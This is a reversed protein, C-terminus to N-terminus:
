QRKTYTAKMSTYWTQGDDMSNEMMWDYKTDTINYSTVRSLMKVGGPMMDEGACVIKGDSFDGTYLSIGMGMNDTWMTQWKGLGRSYTTMSIGTMPMGDMDGEFTSELICGDLILNNTNVAAAETWEAEPTMRYQMDVDWIGVMFAMQKMQAPAGMEVPPQGAPKEDQAMATVGMLLMVMVAMTTALKKM